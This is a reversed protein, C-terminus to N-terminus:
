DAGVLVKEAQGRVGTPGGPRVWISRGGVVSGGVGGTAPPTM